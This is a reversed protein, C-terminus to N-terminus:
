PTGHDEERARNNSRTRILALTGGMILAMAPIVPWFGPFGTYALGPGGPDDGSFAQRDGPVAPTVSQNMRVQFAVAASQGQLANTADKNLGVTITVKRSETAEMGPVRLVVRGEGGTAQSPARDATASIWLDEGAPAPIQGSGIVSLTLDAHDPSGNRVWFSGSVQDGPVLVHRGFVPRGLDGAWTQEDASFQLGDSAVAQAATSCALMLGAGIIAVTRRTM